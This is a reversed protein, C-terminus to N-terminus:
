LKAPVFLDNLFKPLKELAASGLYKDKGDEVTTSGHKFELIKGDQDVTFGAHLDVECVKNVPSIAQSEPNYKGIKLSIGSRHGGKYNFPSADKFFNSHILWWYQGKQFYVGERVDERSTSSTIGFFRRQLAAGFEPVGQLKAAIDAIAAHTREGLEAPSLTEGTRPHEANTTM